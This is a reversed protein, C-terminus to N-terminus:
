QLQDNLWKAYKESVQEIPLMLICPCDYSHMEEVKHCVEDFLSKKTKVLLVCENAQEFQNQWIYQSEMQSLINSCAVLKEEILQKGILIAEEKSGVTIYILGFM